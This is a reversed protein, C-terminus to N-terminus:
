TIIEVASGTPTKTVRLQSDIREELDRVHSIIGILRDGGALTNLVRLSNRLANEDLTGFGEDIFMAEMRIAGSSAQVIDSLGLALALSALFSEGGSLTSVDRWAGTSRDLVELDLGSQHVRDRAEERCRLVFMGETLVTLRLNAAAIVQKFYYQQVYAEFTLKARFNGDAIGACCAYLDRIVAWHPEKKKQLRRVERIERLADEHLALRKLADKQRKDADAARQRCAGAASELATLDQRDRGLTRQRLAEAQDSLSKRKEGYERIRRDKEEMAAQTMGALTYAREDEFGAAKIETLFKERLAARKEELDALRARNEEAATRSKEAGIRLATLAERADKEDKRLAEARERLDKLRKKAAEASERGDAGADRLRAALAETEAALASLANNAANLADMADRHERDAREMDEKTVADGSLVAPRPHETSGCVPCPQGPRLERAILGAQSRFYSEKAATYARDAAESKELLAGAAKRKRELEKEKKELEAMVPLSKELADAAASIGDAEPLRGEAEKHRKEAEPLTEEARRLAEEALALAKQRAAADAEAGKLLAEQPALAQAKRANLLREAELDIEGQRAILSELASLTQVLADLDANLARAKELGTLKEELEEAAKRGEAEAQGRAQKESEILRALCDAMLDAYKPDSRYLAINEKEPFDEGPDAKGAAILLRQNLKDREKAAETNMDRLRYQVQAYLGTNFLKQFLAKREDSSANLIRMFDGQPIMVTQVFQERTLGLIGAVKPNVEKPGDATEGTNLNTIRAEAQHTTTGEGVRKSRLYEPSRRIRWTEGLHSFTLEAYTDRDLPAYDSRYSKNKRRSGSGDGYLAFCVADFLTTKGAGTDGAILFLGSEGFRTFDVETRDAYPGFACMVLKIPRM